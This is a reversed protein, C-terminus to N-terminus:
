RPAPPGAAPNPSSEHETVVGHRKLVSWVVHAMPQIIEREADEAAKLELAALEALKADFDARAAIIDSATM